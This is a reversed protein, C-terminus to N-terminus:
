SSPRADAPVVTDDVDFVALFPRAVVCEVPDPGPPDVRASVTTEGIEIAAAEARCDMLLFAFRRQGDALPPLDPVDVDKPVIASLRAADDTLEVAGPRYPLSTDIASFHVLKGPGM